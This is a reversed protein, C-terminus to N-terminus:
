SIIQKYLINYINHREKTMDKKHGKVTNQQKKREM